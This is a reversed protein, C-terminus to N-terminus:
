FKWERELMELKSKQIEYDQMASDIKRSVRKDYTLIKYVTFAVFSLIPILDIISFQYTVFGVQSYHAIFKIGYYSLSIPVGLVIEKIVRNKADLVLGNTNTNKKIVNELSCRIKEREIKLVRINYRRQKLIIGAVIKKEFNMLGDHKFFYFLEETTEQKLSELLQKNM